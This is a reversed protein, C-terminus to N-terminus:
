RSLLKAIEVAESFHDVSPEERQQEVVSRGFKDKNMEDALARQQASLKIWDGRTFPTPGRSGQIDRSDMRGLM